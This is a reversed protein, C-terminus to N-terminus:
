RPPISYTMTAHAVLPEAGISRLDVAGIALRKGLKLSTATAVVDAYAGRNVVIAPYTAVGGSGVVLASEDPHAQETAAEIRVADETGLDPRLLETGSRQIVNRPSRVLVRSRFLM